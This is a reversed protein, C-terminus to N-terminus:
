PTGKSTATSAATAALIGTLQGRLTGKRPIWTGSLAAQGITFADAGAAATDRLQRPTTISRAVLRGTTAARATRILEVSTM